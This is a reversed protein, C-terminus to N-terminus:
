QGLTIFSKSMMEAEAKARDGSLQLSALLSKSGSEGRTWQLRCDVEMRCDLQIIKMMQVVSFQLNRSPLSREKYEHMVIYSSYEM